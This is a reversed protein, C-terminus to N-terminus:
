RLLTVTLRRGGGHRAMGAIAAGGGLVDDLLAADPVPPREDGRVVLAAKAWWGRLLSDVEREAASAHQAHLQVLAGTEVHGDIFVSTDSCGLIADDGLTLDLLAVDAAGLIQDLAPEGDLEHVLNGDASTVIMPAGVRRRGLAVLTEVAVGDLDLSVAGGTLVAGDLVVHSAGDLVFSGAHAGRRARADIGAAAWLALAPAGDIQREGGIVSSSTCGVLATPRVLERVADVIDDLAAVHSESALLVLADPADGVVDLIRGACEGVAHAARPHASLGVAFRPPTV